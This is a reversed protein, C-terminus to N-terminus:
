KALYMCWGDSDSFTGSSSTLSKITGTFEIVSNGSYPTITIKKGSIKWTGSYTGEYESFTKDGEIDYYEKSTFTGGSKFTVKCKWYPDDMTVNWTGVILDKYESSSNENNNEDADGASTKQPVTYTATGIKVDKNNKYDYMYFTATITAQATGKTKVTTSSSAQLDADSSIFLNTEPKKSFTGGSIKYTASILNVGRSFAKASAEVNLYLDIVTEKTSGTTVTGFEVCAHGFEFDLREDDPMVYYIASALWTKEDNTISSQRLRSNGDKSILEQNSYQFQKGNIYVSSGSIIYSFSFPTISTSSGFYSDDEHNYNKGIGEGDGIFFLTSFEKTLSANEDDGWLSFDYSTESVWSHSELITEIDSIEDSGNTDGDDGCSTMAFGVALVTLLLAFNLIKKM